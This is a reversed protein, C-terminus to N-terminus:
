SPFTIKSAKEWDSMSIEISKWIKQTMKVQVKYSAAQNNKHKKKNRYVNWM